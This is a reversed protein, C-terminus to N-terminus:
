GQSEYYENVEKLDELTDIEFVPNKYERFSIRENAYIARQLFDDIPGNEM